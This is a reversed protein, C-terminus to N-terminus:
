NTIIKSIEHFLCRDLAEKENLKYKYLISSPDSLYRNSDIRPLKYFEFCRELIIRSLIKCIRKIEHTEEKNIGEMEYLEIVEKMYQSIVYWEILKNDKSNHIFEDSM